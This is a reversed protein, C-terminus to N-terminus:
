QPLARPTNVPPMVTSIVPPPLPAVAPAQRRFIGCVLSLVGKIGRWIKPLLWIVAAAFVLSMGIFLVPHHLAVWLGLVVAIDESFSALWNSVPEPSTNILIRSGAKTAHTAAAVGGGLIGAALSVTPSVNGVAGAALVAGAPIRIFTQITDWGTDVGPVKDAFFEVIFMFGAATLVIPDSLVHLTPPLEINGTASLSGLVLIAAYLNIGSAWAVGMTLAITSTVTQFQDM